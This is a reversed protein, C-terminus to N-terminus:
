EYPFRIRGMYQLNYRISGGYIEGGHKNIFLFKLEPIAWIFDAM